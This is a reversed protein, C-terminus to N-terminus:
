RDYAFYTSVGFDNDGDSFAESTTGNFLGIRSKDFVLHDGRASTSAANQGDPFPPQEAAQKFKDLPWDAINGDITLRRDGLPRVAIVGKPGAHTFCLSLLLTSLVASPILSRQILRLRSHNSTM